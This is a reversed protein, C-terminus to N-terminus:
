TQYRKCIYLLQLKLSSLFFMDVKNVGQFPFYFIRGFLMFVVILFYYGTNLYIVRNFCIGLFPGTLAQMHFASAVKYTLPQMIHHLRCPREVFGTAMVLSNNHKHTGKAVQRQPWQWICLLPLKYEYFINFVAFTLAFWSLINIENTVCFCNAWANGRLKVTRIKVTLKM